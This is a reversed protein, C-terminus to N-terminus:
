YSYLCKREFKLIGNLSLHKSVNNQQSTQRLELVSTVVILGMTQPFIHGGLSSGMCFQRPHHSDARLLWMNTSKHLTHHHHRGISRLTPCSHKCEHLLAGQSCGPVHHSCTQEWAANEEGDCRCPCHSSWLSPSLCECLCGRCAPSPFPSCQFSGRVFRSSCVFHAPLLLFLCFAICSIPHAILASNHLGDFEKFLSPIMLMSGPLLFGQHLPPLLPQRKWDLFFTFAKDSEILFSLSLKAM